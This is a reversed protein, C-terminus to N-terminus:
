MAIKRAGHRMKKARWMCSRLSSFSFLLVIM